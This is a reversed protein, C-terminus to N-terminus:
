IASSHGLDLREMDLPKSGARPAFLSGPSFSPLRGRTSSESNPSVSQDNNFHESYEKQKQLDIVGANKAASTLFQGLLDADKEKSEKLFGLTQEVESPINAMFKQAIRMWQMPDASSKKEIARQAIKILLNGENRDLLSVPVKKDLLFEITEAQRTSKNNIAIELSLDKDLKTTSPFEKSASEVDGDKVSTLFPSLTEGFISKRLNKMIKNFKLNIFYIQGLLYNV